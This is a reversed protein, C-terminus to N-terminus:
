RGQYASQQQTLSDVFSKKGNGNDYEIDQTRSVSHARSRGEASVHDLYDGYGSRIKTAKIGNMISGAILGIAAGIVAGTAAVPAFLAGIAVGAATWGLLKLFSHGGGHQDSYDNLSQPKIGFNDEINKARSTAASNAFEGRSPSNNIWSALIGADLIDTLRSM